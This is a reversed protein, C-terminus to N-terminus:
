AGSTSGPVSGSTTATATDRQELDALFADVTARVRSDDSLRENVIRESLEM